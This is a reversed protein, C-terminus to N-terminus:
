RAGQSDFLEGLREPSGWLLPSKMGAPPAVHKGVVKFMQGIFGPRGTPSASRAAASCVRADRRPAGRDPAFMVGLDVGRRRLQWGRRCHRPTRRAFDIRLGEAAARAARELLAPVYDTSTV